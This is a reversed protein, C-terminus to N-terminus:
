IINCLPSIDVFLYCAPRLLLLLLSVKRRRCHIYDSSPFSHFNHSSDEVAKCQCHSRKDLEGSVRLPLIRTNCCYYRTIPRTNNLFRNLLSQHPSREQLGQSPSSCAATAIAHLLSKEKSPNDRIPAIRSPVM